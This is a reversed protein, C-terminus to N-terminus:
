GGLLEVCMNPKHSIVKEENGNSVLIVNLKEM